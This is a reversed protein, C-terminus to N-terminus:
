VQGFVEGGGAGDEPLRRWTLRFSRPSRNKSPHPPPDLRRERDRIRRTASSAGASLRECPLPGRFTAPPKRQTRGRNESPRGRHGGRGGGVLSRCGKRLRTRRGIDSRPM